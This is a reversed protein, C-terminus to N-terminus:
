HQGRAAVHMQKFMHRCGPAFGLSFFDAKQSDRLGTLCLLLGLRRLLLSPEQYRLVLTVRRKRLFFGVTCALLETLKFTGHFFKFRAPWLKWFAFSFIRDCPGLSGCSFHIKEWHFQSSFSFQTTSDCRIVFAIDLCLYNKTWSPFPMLWLTRQERRDGVDRHSRPHMEPIIPGASCGLLHARKLVRQMNVWSGSKWARDRRLLM